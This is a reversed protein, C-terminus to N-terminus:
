ALLRAGKGSALIGNKFTNSIRNTIIKTHTRQNCLVANGVESSLDCEEITARGEKIFVACEGRTEESEVEIPRGECRKRRRITFGKIL